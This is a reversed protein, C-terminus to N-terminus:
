LFVVRSLPVRHFILDLEYLCGRNSRSLGSLNMLVLSSDSLLRNLALKWVRDQCLFTEVTVSQRSQRAALVLTTSPWHSSDGPIRWWGVTADQRNRGVRSGSRELSVLRQRWVQIGM